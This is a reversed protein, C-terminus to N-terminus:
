VVVRGRRLGSRDRTRNPALHELAIALLTGKDALRPHSAVRASEELEVVNMWLREAADVRRRVKAHEADGVITEGGLSCKATVVDTSLDLLGAIAAWWLL